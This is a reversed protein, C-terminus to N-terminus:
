LHCANLREKGSFLARCGFPSLDVPPVFNGRGKNSSSASVYSLLSLVCVCVCTFDRRRRFCRMPADNNRTTVLLNCQNIV